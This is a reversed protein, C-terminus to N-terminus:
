DINSLSTYQNCYSSYHHRDSKIEYRCWNLGYQLWYVEYLLQSDTLSVNIIDHLFPSIYYMYMTLRTHDRQSCTKSRVEKTM